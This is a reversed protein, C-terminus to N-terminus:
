IETLLLSRYLVSDAIKMEKNQNTQERPISTIGFKNQYHTVIM